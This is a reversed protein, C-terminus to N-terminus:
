ALYPSLGTKSWFRKADGWVEKHTLVSIEWRTILNVMVQPLLPCIDQGGWLAQSAEEWLTPDKSYYASAM